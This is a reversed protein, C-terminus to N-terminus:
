LKNSLNKATITVRKEDRYDELHEWNIINSDNWNFYEYEFGFHTLMMDLGAKSPWGVLIKDRGLLKIGAGPIEPNEERIEIIPNNHDSISTDLILYKPNIRKIQDLLFIHEMTHYFFGFCFVIDISGTPIKNIESHVDGVIFTYQEEPVGYNKMNKKAKEVHFSRGEIGIVHKAGNKIAAFSWRGDHSGLDLVSNEHIINYNSEILVRYRNNLRNPFPATESSHYFSPYDDFFGHNMNNLCNEM